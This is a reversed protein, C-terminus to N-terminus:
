RTVARAMDAVVEAIGLAGVDAIAQLRGAAMPVLQTLSQEAQTLLATEFCARRTVCAVAEVKTVHLIAKQSIGAMDLATRQQMRELARSSGRLVLSERPLILDQMLQNHSM